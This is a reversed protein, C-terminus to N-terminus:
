EGTPERTPYFDKANMNTINDLNLGMVSPVIESTALGILQEHNPKTYMMLVFGGEEIPRGVEMLYERLRNRAVDWDRVIEQARDWNTIGGSLINVNYCHMLFEHKEEKTRVAAVQELVIGTNEGIGRRLKGYSMDPAFGYQSGSLTHVFRGIYQVPSNKRVVVSFPNEERDLTAEVGERGLKSFNDYRHKNGTNLYNKKNWRVLFDTHEPVTGTITELGLRDSNPGVRIARVPIVKPADVAVVAPPNDDDFEFVGKSM